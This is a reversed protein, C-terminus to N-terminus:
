KVHIRLSYSGTVVYDFPLAMQEAATEPSTFMSRSPARGAQMVNLVSSPLSPLTKDDYYATPSAEVLSVYLKNNTREQNLLSVAQPLDLFRNMNGAINQMRNVTDADSLVIRHDGKALGAPIKVKFERQISEGRYPRLSAKVTVEDGPRVDANDVWANEVMAVRREPMLDITLNVSKVDATKVNNLYLRNFKDGWWGALMMPAPMPSEGSAQMTSLAIDQMGNMLVKGNLRYTAEDAFENLESLSNYLTLMMLYPTWKQHVFINYHFDKQNRVKESKDLSRIKLTVPIMPSEDGLVGMIGSHRDQHLAGVVETSNAMKNPQFASALTMVVEGKAMPMDLPGLNFFPHGFALVRKGDNYTVTGVGSVSMDGSVLVGAITDGPNLSHEWGKAPKATKVESGAAGGQVATIGLQQFLPGFQQLTSEHFGSFILPSEIPVMTQVSPFNKGSGAAVAQMLMDSPVSVERTRAVKDPTRADDPRSKDFENIELMLEIPTIGCIADPSFVSMRLAVAGVLKGDIYVPSGSMGGAVNTRIAKGGMKGIIVDQNPGWINKLRGIIEIPVPEPENGQFVTWATAKMGPKIEKLPMIEVKGAKPRTLNADGAAYVPLSVVALGLLLATNRMNM